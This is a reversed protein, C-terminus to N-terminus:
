SKTEAMFTEIAEVVQKQDKERIFPFHASGRIEVNRIHPGLKSYLRMRRTPIRVDFEGFVNLIPIKMKQVFKLADFKSIFEDSIKKFFVKNFKRDLHAMLDGAEDVEDPALFIETPTPDKMKLRALEKRFEVTLDEVHLYSCILVIGKIRPDDTKRLYDIALAGGWSHGVLYVPEDGEGVHSGIQALLDDMSTDKKQLQTYFVTEVDDSFQNSFFQELYDPYGPGGHLFILKSKMTPM